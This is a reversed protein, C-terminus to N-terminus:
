ANPSIPKAVEDTMIRAGLAIPVAGFVSLTGALLPEGNYALWISGAQMMLGLTIDASGAIRDANDYIKKFFNSYARGAAEGAVGGWDKLKM